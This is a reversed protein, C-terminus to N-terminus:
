PSSGSVERNIRDPKGPRPRLRAQRASATPPKGRRLRLRLRPLLCRHTPRSEDANQRKAEAGDRGQCRARGRQRNGAKRSRRPLGNGVALGARCRGLGDRQELLRHRRPLALPGARRTVMLMQRDRQEPRRALAAHGEIGGGCLLCGRSQRGGHRVQVERDLGDHLHVRREVRARPQIREGLDPDLGRQGRLDERSQDHAALQGSPCQPVM